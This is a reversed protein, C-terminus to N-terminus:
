RFWAHFVCPTFLRAQIPAARRRLPGVRSRLVPDTLVQLCDAGFVVTSHGLWQLRVTREPCGPDGLAGM